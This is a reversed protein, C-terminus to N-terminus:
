KKNVYIPKRYFSDKKIAVAQLLEIDAGPICFAYYYCWKGDNDKEIVKAQLFEIDAGPIQKAYYYCWKGTTDLDILEAFTLERVITISSSVYKNDGKIIHKGPIVECYRSYANYYLLVDDLNDCFHFGHGCLKIEKDTAYTKGVEYQFCRCKLDKTFAKIYMNFGEMAKVVM